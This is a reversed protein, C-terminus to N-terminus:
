LQKTKSEMSEGLQVFKKAKEWKRARGIGWRNILQKGQWQYVDELLTYGRSSYSIYSWTLVSGQYSGYVGGSMYSYVENYRLPYDWMQIDTVQGDFGSFDIVPEGSWVYKYRLMKKISMNSGRFVQAVPKMSDMTICVRTWIEEYLNPFFKINPIFSQYYGYPNTYLQFATDSLTLRLPSHSPSLTLTASPSDTIYRLCVSVGQTSPPTTWSYYPTSSFYPSYFSIGGSNSLTLM